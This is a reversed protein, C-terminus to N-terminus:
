PGRCATRVAAAALVLGLGKAIELAVASQGLYIALLILAPLIVTQWWALRHRHTMEKAELDREQKRDEVQAALAAKGLEFLHDDRRKQVEMAQTRTALERDNQDHSAVRSSRAIKGAQKLESM